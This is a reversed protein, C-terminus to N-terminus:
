LKSQSILRLALKPALDSPITTAWDDTALQPMQKCFTETKFISKSFQLPLLGGAIEAFVRWDRHDNADALNTRTM